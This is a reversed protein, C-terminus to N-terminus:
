LVVIEQVALLILDLSDSIGDVVARATVVTLENVGAAMYHPLSVAVDAAAEMGGCASILSIKAEVVLTGVSTLLLVVAAILLLISLFTQSLWSLSFHARAGLFPPPPDFAPCPPSGSSSVLRTRPRSSM